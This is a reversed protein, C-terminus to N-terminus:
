RRTLVDRLVAAASHDVDRTATVLVLPGDNRRLQSLADAAPGDALEDRYRRAFEAFRDADHGYWRRLETSPAVDKLWESIPAGDRAVGRPWLRDVLVRRGRRRALDDDYIRAISVDMEDETLGMWPGPLDAALRQLEASHLASLKELRRAGLATLRLRVIRQDDDDRVRYVLGATDARDVLGVISHHKVLLYEAAESMTPGRRDAHGRIALLLQHQAPTLGAARAQDESWREFRRLGTRIQLLRSYVDDSVGM